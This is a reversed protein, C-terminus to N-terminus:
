RWRAYLTMNAEVTDREFIWPQTGDPDKFWGAFMAGPKSPTMPRDLKEGKKVYVPDLQTGGNTEFTVKKKRNAALLALILLRLIIGFLIKLIKKGM